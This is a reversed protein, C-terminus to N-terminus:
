LPLQKGLNRLKFLAQGRSTEQLTILMIFYPNVLSIHISLKETSFSCESLKGLNLQNMLSSVDSCIRSYEAALLGPDSPNLRHYEAITLGNTDVVLCALAGPTNNVIDELFSELQM